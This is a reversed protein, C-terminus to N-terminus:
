AKENPLYLKYGETKRALGPYSFLDHIFEKDKKRFIINYSDRKGHHIGVYPIIGYKNKVFELLGDCFKKSGTTITCARNKVTICGNGDFYGRLFPLPNSLWSPFPLEISKNKTFGYVSTMHEYLAFSSIYIGYLDDPGNKVKRCIKVSPHKLVNSIRHLMEVDRNHIFIALGKKRSSLNGDAALLGIVYQGDVDSTDYIPALTWPSPAIYRAPTIGNRKYAMTITWQSYGTEQAIKTVHYGMDKWKTLQALTISM